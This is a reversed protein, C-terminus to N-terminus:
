KIRGYHLKTSYLFEIKGNKQYRDFIDKLEALMNDYQKDDPRLSYSTSLLRGKLGEWDFKQSNTFSQTKIENPSFFTALATQDFKSASSERYDKGYKLILKEYDGILASHEIDRVNWVLLVWGLNKLIREFEIKTKGPDFWHFATGVTIIDISKDKLNTSEATGDVSIFNAYQKLYEEGAERMAQNPEVGYVTNDYDLFLKSLLGTGSGIDAIISNKTLGCDEILTELVAKPYSPRYKIYYQVAQTFRQLSNKM